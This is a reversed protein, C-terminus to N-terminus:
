FVFIQIKKRGFFVLNRRLSHRPFSPVLIINIVDCHKIVNGDKPRQRTMKRACLKLHALSKSTNKCSENNPEGAVCYRGVMNWINGKSKLGIQKNFVTVDCVYIVCCKPRVIEKFSCLSKLVNELVIFKSVRKRVDNVFILPLFIWPM